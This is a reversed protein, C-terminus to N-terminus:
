WLEAVCTEDSNDFNCASSIPNRLPDMLSLDISDWNEYVCKIGTRTHMNWRCEAMSGPHTVVEWIPTYVPDM